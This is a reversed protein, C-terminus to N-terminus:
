LQRLADIPEMKSARWAPYIGALVSVTMAVLVASIITSIPFVPKFSISSSGSAGGFGASSSSSGSAAFGGGGAASGSRFSGSASASTTRASSAGATATAGTGTTSAGGGGLVTSLSYSTGAGVVIGLVGGIFGIILAQFLFILLIHRNKFGVSKLIGIEHTREYVAILMINMIGIAAVLLSVGAIITFLLSISGIISSTTQLLQATTTVRAGSGYITTILSATSNVTSTNSAFVLMENFSARHLVVEAAPLSMFVATDIPIIFGGHSTLIGDIPVTVTSASRGGGTKLTGAQGVTVTQAGAASTPFAISHGVVAAPTITDQYISGQYFTVNGGLLQKIGQTTVGIITASANHNGAYLVGSGTLLPTVSTVNPLAELRGVDAITFGTSGSSGVIISTPGLANLSSSISQSIGATVSTLAVIAAVGIIVMVITLATRIRKENLDKYSLWLVDQLNM